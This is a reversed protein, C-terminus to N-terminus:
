KWSSRWWVRRLIQNICLKSSLYIILKMEITQYLYEVEFVTVFICLILVYERESLGPRNVDEHPRRTSQACYRLLPSYATWCTCWTLYFLNYRFIDDFIVAHKTTPKSLYRHELALSPEEQIKFRRKLLKEVAHQYRQHHCRWRGGFSM